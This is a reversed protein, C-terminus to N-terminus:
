DAPQPDATEIIVSVRHRYTQATALLRDYLNPSGHKVSLLIGPAIRPVTEFHGSYRNPDTIEFGYDALVQLIRECVRGYDEPPLPLFVPNQEEVYDPPPALMPVDVSSNLSQCGIALAPLLALAVLRLFRMM